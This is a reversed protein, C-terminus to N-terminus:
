TELRKIVRMVTTANWAGGRPAEIGRDTLAQAIERLPKDRIAELIPRV